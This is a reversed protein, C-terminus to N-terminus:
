FYAWFGGRKKESGKGREPPAEKYIVSRMFM